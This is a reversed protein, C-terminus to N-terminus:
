KLHMEFFNTIKELNEPSSLKKFNHGGTELQVLEAEVGAKQLVEYLKRSQAIPVTPDDVAHIILMPCSNKTVHTVPSMQKVLEKKEEFTGSFLTQFREAAAPTAEIWGIFDSPGFYDVVAQVASSQDLNEGVDFEKAGGAGLFAVLHGGASGGWAGFRNVDLNYEKAHARLWRVAAKCDIVQAPMPDKPRFRYTIGAVAYGQSVLQNAAIAAM